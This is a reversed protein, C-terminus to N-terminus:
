NSADRDLLSRGIECQLCGGRTCYNRFLEHMGQAEAASRPATGLTRFRRTVSDRKSPLQELLVSTPRSQINEDMTEGSEAIARLLPVVANIILTDIRTQGLAPSHRKTATSPRYHTEWFVTPVASLRERIAPLARQTRAAQQLQEVPASGFLADPGFWAAAQAIRLPPLNNPRLRFFTWATTNMPPVPRDAHLRAYRARFDMVADATHRDASLLRGPDPLLGATGLLLSERDRADPISKLVPPPLRRALDIMPETNKAYGLGAFLREQLLIDAPTGRELRLRFRNARRSLRKSGLTNIWERRLPAPVDSWQPACVLDDRDRQVFAHVMRRLSRQLRPALVVEPLVSGDTRTLRGTHLDAHLTVHLVVRDYRPDRHHNHDFWAGSTVHIEVDGFWDVEGIRLHAGSFDPGADTNLEGPDLILVSDGDTTTLDSRNFRQADWLDQVFAEPVSRGGPAPEHVEVSDPSLDPERVRVLRRDPVRRM